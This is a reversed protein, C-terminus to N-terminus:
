WFGTFLQVLSAVGVLRGWVMLYYGSVGLVKRGEEALMRLVDVIEMVEKGEKKM